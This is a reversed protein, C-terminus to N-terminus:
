ENMLFYFDKVKTYNIFDSTNYIEFIKSIEKCLITSRADQFNTSHRISHLSLDSTKGIASTRPEATKIREAHRNLPTTRAM